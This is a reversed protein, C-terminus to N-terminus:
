FTGKELILSSTNINNTGIVHVQPTLLPVVHVSIHFKFNNKKVKPYKNIQLFRTWIKKIM